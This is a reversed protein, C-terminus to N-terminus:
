PHRLQLDHPPGKLLSAGVTPADAPETQTAAFPATQSGQDLVYVLATRAPLRLTATAANWRAQTAPRTDAAGPARHVPHLVYPRGRLEPLLLEAEEPAVNIAYLLEAFGAGRHGRGDLHGVVVTPIQDPGTNLLTLRRQVDEATRLRFLSSSARIRLLDLFADRTHRIEAPTPKLAAADALLPRMAPWLGAGERKPPLGGGFFNDNLTWDVRNFWDGSDYSNRDLNKSRLVEVGAHLYAIGQSFATLAGGLVQVRARDERPTDRPLKLLHLDWLTPNDHNEVYNVVEGPQSAFGAGQGAYDIDLLKKVRGDHTRLRYNELTGALGVRVLDASRLLDERSGTGAARAAANPAYHLGNLWGQRTLVEAPGDCCGGGRGAERGRDSFAAIGSGNLRRQAAQVFRAGDKVEGFNWGEGLLHIHRAATRSSGPGSTRGAARNVARQLREMAERPQHGMLDFRMSDIRYDRAWVVASDIMLKAMMRHETATNDCCTSTEVAGQANLRHYYGPVIRDLVAQPKEGSASTHNYVMDMGVRLGARHLAMVMRRFELVRTAGDAADSAYSGEPATFHLPDYGWNYCDTAASAGVRAQQEESDPPLASLAAEDPSVCGAEPVTALDFVPLLHVDTLGASALLKLHQMGASRTHTFAAYRGRDAAPVTTDRVSFDRVHLEYIVLDTPHRVTDPRPTELWGAPQLRPDDLRGIWSRQSNTGLSLSYPDTVRNRVVGIGPVFVDVLYTYYHAKPRGLDGPLSLAWAGTAADRQLPHLANAPAQGDAYLCLHVARATPGWVCFGTRWGGHTRTPRAGLDAITEARAYLDDLAGAMQTGTAQLVRGQADEQVLVLQGRHLERLRQQDAARVALTVGEGVWRWRPQLAPPLAASHVQLALVGDAGAVPTGPTAVIQGLASHHLRYIGSAAAQGPWRLWRRSLWVAQAPLAANAAAAPAAHTVTEFGADCAPLDPARAQAAPLTLALLLGLWM